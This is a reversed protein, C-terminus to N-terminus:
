LIKPVADGTSLEHLVTFRIAQRNGHDLQKWSNVMYGEKDRGNELEIDQVVQNDIVVFADKPMNELKEILDKVRM